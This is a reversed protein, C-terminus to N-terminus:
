FSFGKSYWNIYLSCAMNMVYDYVYDCVKPLKFFLTVTDFNITLSMTLITNCAILIVALNLKNSKLLNFQVTQSFLSLIM